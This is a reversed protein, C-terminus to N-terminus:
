ASNRLLRKNRKRLQDAKYFRDKASLEDLSSKMIIPPVNPVHYTAYLNNQSKNAQVFDWIAQVTEKQYQMIPRRSLGAVKRVLGLSYLSTCPRYVYKPFKPILTRMSLHEMQRVLKELGYAHYNATKVKEPQLAAIDTDFPAYIYFRGEVAIQVPLRQQTCISYNIMLEFWSIGKDEQSPESAEAPWQLTQLWNWVQIASNAGAGCAQAMETDCPGIELSHYNEPKWNTLNRFAHVFIDGQEDQEQSQLVEGVVEEHNKNREEKRIRINEINLDALFRYVRRLRVYEQQNYQHIDDALIKVDLFENQLAQSAARDALHNALLNWLDDQDHADSLRRHAKIKCIQFKDSNWLQKLKSVLDYNSVKHTLPSNNLIVAIINCVYQADTYIDMSADVDTYIACQVAHLVSQLESRAPTQHGSTNSISVCRLDPIHLHDTLKEVQEAQKQRQDKDSSVDQILSWSARRCLPDTPVICAGDTFCTFHPAGNKTTHQLAVPEPMRRAHLISRLLSLSPNMYAVPVYVWDPRVEKLIHIAEPHKHRVETMAPCWLLRHARDDVQGCLECIQTEENNWIHKTAGTQFGGVINLAIASKEGHSLSQYVKQCMQLNISKPAGKRNAINDCVCKQWGLKLARNLEKSSVEFINFSLREPGELNGNEHLEWGIRTLYIKLASAPGQSYVGDFAVVSHVFQQAMDHNYTALRRITRLASIVVYLLPDMMNPFMTSCALFSSSTKHNGTLAKTAARRLDRFHKLGIAQSEASYLAVPWIASQIMWAKADLSMPIWELRGARAMGTKIRDQICGLMQQKDYHITMGLDKACNQVQIVVDGSPFLMSLNKACEKFNKDTGWAWSKTQDIKMKLSEVWNLITILSRIHMRTNRAIWSWNDAYTFPDIQPCSIKYWFTISLIVMGLVSMADGEPIGCTSAMSKGLCSGIQPLRRLLGLNNFWFDTAVNPVKLIRFLKKLPWRPILNFAKVLDLTYGGIGSQTNISTEIVFQQQLTLDKAGRAPIGGSIQVPIQYQMKELVQDAIIKSALRVLSGLITIPRTHHMGQPNSNKALLVTRAQMLNASFGKTFVIQFAQVLHEIAQYPLLKFEENRWGCM